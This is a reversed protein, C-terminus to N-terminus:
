RVDDSLHQRDFDLAELTVAQEAFEGASGRPWDDEVSEVM